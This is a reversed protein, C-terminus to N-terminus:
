MQEALIHSVHGEASCGIINENDSLRLTISEFNNSLYTWQDYEWREEVERKVYTEITNFSIDFMDRDNNKFNTILEEIAEGLIIERVGDAMREESEISLYKDILYLYENNKTDYYRTKIFDVEGLECLLRKKVKDDIKYRNVRGEIKKIDNDLLELNNKLIMLGIKKIDIYLETSSNHISKGESLNRLNKISIEQLIYVTQKIIGEM